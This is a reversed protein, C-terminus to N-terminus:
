GIAPATLGERKDLETTAFPILAKILSNMPIGTAAARRMITAMHKPTYYLSWAERYIGEWEKKTMKPHRHM